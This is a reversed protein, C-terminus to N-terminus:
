GTPRILARLPAGIMVLHARILGQSRPPDVLRGIDQPKSPGDTAVWGRGGSARWNALARVQAEDEYRQEKELRPAAALLLRWVLLCGVAEILLAIWIWWM